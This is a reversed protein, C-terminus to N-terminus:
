PCCDERAREEVFVEGSNAKYAEYREPFDEPLVYVSKKVREVLGYRGLTREDVLECVIPTTPRYHDRLWSARRRGRALIDM